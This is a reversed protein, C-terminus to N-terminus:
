NGEIYKVYPVLQSLIQDAQTAFEPLLTLVYTDDQNFAPDISHFISMTPKNISKMNMLIDRLSKEHTRDMIDLSQIDRSRRVVIGEQFREHRGLLHKTKNIAQAGCLYRPDRM